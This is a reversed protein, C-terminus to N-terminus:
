DELLVLDGESLSLVPEGDDDHWLGLEDADFRVVFRTGKKHKVQKITGFRDPMWRHISAVKVRDGIQLHRAM